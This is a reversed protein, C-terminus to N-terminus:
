LVRFNLVYCFKRCYYNEDFFGVPLKWIGRYYRCFTGVNAVLTYYFYM